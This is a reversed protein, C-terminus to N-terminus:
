RTALSHVTGAATVASGESLEFHTGIRCRDRQGEWDLFALIIPVDQGSVAHEQSVLYVRVEIDGAAQVADIYRLQCRYDSRITRVSGDDRDRFRVTCLAVFAFAPKSFDPLM